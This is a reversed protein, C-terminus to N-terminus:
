LSTSAVAPRYQHARLQPEGCRAPGLQRRDAPYLHDVAGPGPRGGGADVPRHDPTAAVAVGKPDVGSAIATNVVATQADVDAQSIPYSYTCSVTAGPALTAPACTGVPTLTGSGTFATQDDGVQVGSLTVNGSNTATITYTVVNGLSYDGAVTHSKAVSLAPDATAPVIQDTDSATSTLGGGIGSASATTALPTQADVDAQTIQYTLTCVYPDGPAVATTTPCDPSGLPTTGTWNGLTLTTPDLTVNGTDTATYTFTVTDGVDWSGDAPADHTIELSIAPAAAVPTWISGATDSVQTTLYSGTAESSATVVIGRDVDAQSVTYTATCTYSGGVPVTDPDPCDLTLPDGLGDFGTAAIAVGSLPVNGDNTATYTYTIVDGVDAQGDGDADGTLANTEVLSVSPAPPTLTTVQGDDTIVSGDWSSTATASAENVVEAATIDAATVTHSGYCYLTEGVALTAPLTTATGASGGAPVIVCGTLTGTLADTLDVGTLTVFGTNTAAITYDIVDGLTRQPGNAEPYAFSPDVYDYKTVEIIPDTRFLTTTVPITQAIQIPGMFGATQMNIALSEAPTQGDTDATIVLEYVEGSAM